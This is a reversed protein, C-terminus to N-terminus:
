PSVPRIEQLELQLSAIAPQLTRNYQILCETVNTFLTVVVNCCCFSLLLGSVAECNQMMPAVEIGKVLTFTSSRMGFLGAACNVQQLASLLEDSKLQQTLQQTTSDVKQINVFGEDLKRVEV